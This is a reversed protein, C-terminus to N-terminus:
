DMRWRIPEHRMAMTDMDILAAFPAFAPDAMVQAAAAEAEARSAWEVRDTWGGAGDETLSRRLFGPAARVASATAAAAALFAAPDTGPRLRFTVIEAVPLATQM